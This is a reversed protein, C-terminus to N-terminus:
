VSPCVPSVVSWPAAHRVGAEDQATATTESYEPIAAYDNIFRNRIPM